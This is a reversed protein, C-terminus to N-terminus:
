GIFEAKMDALVQILAAIQQPTHNANVQIRLLGSQIPVAPYTASQVYFGRDFLFKGARFTKEIDGIVVSVIPAEGGLVNLGMQSLGDILQRILTHLKAILCRGEDSQLIDCVAIIAALYPPPVPGGFIFTSSKIKLIRKLEGSKCTVFGGMCSFAKSLSGVLLVNRLTGLVQHAAGRGDNGIVGVGHADDVYLIGRNARAVVDLEALSPIRGSMSYVGDVAVLSAAYEHSQLMQELSEGTCPSLERVVAGNGAAIKAAEHISNHSHRDVILLDHKGVLAPILGMNALTVSAFILTDEVELWDALRREAQGCLATNSFARSAGNHTGWESTAKMMAQQLRCDRDLGLFSDSGFNILCQNGVRMERSDGMEDVVIDKLHIDLYRDLYAVGIRTVKDQLLHLKLRELPDVPHGNNSSYAPSTSALQNHMSVCTERIAPDQRNPNLTAILIICSLIPKLIPCLPWRTEDGKM